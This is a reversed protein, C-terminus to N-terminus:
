QPLLSKNEITKEQSAYPTRLIYDRPRRSVPVFVLPTGGKITTGSEETLPTSNEDELERNM